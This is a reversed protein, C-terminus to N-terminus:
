GNFTERLKTDNHKWLKNQSHKVSGAKKVGLTYFTLARDQAKAQRELKKALKINM